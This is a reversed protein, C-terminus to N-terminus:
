DLSLSTGYGATKGPPRTQLRVLERRKQLVKLWLLLAVISVGALLAHLVVVTIADALMAQPVRTDNNSPGCGSSSWYGRLLIGIVERFIWLPPLWRGHEEIFIQAATLMTRPYIGVPM